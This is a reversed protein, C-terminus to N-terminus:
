GGRAARHYKAEAARASREDEMRHAAALSAVFEDTFASLGFGELTAILLEVGTSSEYDAGPCGLLSNIDREDDARTRPM